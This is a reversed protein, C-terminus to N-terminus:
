TGDDVIQQNVPQNVPEEVPPETTPEEATPEETPEAEEVEEADECTTMGCTTANPIAFVIAIDVARLAATNKGDAVHTYALQLDLADFRLIVGAEWQLVDRDLRLLDLRVADFNFKEPPAEPKPYFPTVGIVEGKFLTKAWRMGVFPIFNKGAFQGIKADVLLQDGPTDFRHNYGVGARVFSNTLPIYAGLLLTASLDIQADGLTLDDDDRELTEPDFTSQPAKYGLPIKSLVEGTVMVPGRYFNYRGALRMDGAGWDQGSFDLVAARAEPLTLPDKRNDLVVQSTFSLQKLAVDAAVEFRDTFGYRLGMYLASTQFSGKFPYLQRKGDQLYEEDALGLNFDFSLTLEDKPLTWPSAMATTPTILAALAALACIAMNQRM